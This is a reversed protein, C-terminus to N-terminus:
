HAGWGAGAATQCSTGPTSKNVSRQRTMSDQRDLMQEMHRHSCIQRTETDQPEWPSLQLGIDTFVHRSFPELLLKGIQRSQGRTRESEPNNSTQDKRTKCM